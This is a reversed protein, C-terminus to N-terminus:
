EDKSSIADEPLPIVTEKDKTFVWNKRAYRTIYDEDDLLSIEEELRQCEEELDALTSKANALDISRQYLGCLRGAFTIAAICIIAGLLLGLIRTKNMQRKRRQAM